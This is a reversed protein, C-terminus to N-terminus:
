EHICIEIINDFLSTTKNAKNFSEIITPQKPDRLIKISNNFKNNDKGNAKIGLISLRFNLVKLKENLLYVNIKKYCKASRNISIYTSFFHDM